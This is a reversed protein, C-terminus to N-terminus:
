EEINVTGFCLIEASYSAFGMSPYMRMGKNILIHQLLKQYRGM